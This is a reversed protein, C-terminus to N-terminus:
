LELAICDNKFYELIFILQSSVAKTVNTISFFNNVTKLTNDNNGSNNQKSALKIIEELILNLQVTQKIGLM